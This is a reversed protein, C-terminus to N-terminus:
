NLAKWRTESYNRISQVCKFIKLFRFGLVRQLNFLGFVHSNISSSFCQTCQIARAIVRGVTGFDHFNAYYMELYQCFHELFPWFLWFRSTLVRKETESDFGPLSIQALSFGTWSPSRVADVKLPRPTPLRFFRVKFSGHSRIQLALASFTQLSITWPRPKWVCTKRFFDNALECRRLVGFDASKGTKLFEPEHPVPHENAITFCISEIVTKTFM